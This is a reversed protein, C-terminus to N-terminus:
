SAEESKSVQQIAAIIRQKFNDTMQSNMTRCLFDRRIGLCQAVQTQNVGAEIMRIRLDVNHKEM